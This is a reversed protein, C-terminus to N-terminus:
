FDSQDAARKAAAVAMARLDFAIAGSKSQSAFEDLLSEAAAIDDDTPDELLWAPNKGPKAEGKVLRAVVVDSDEVETLRPVLSRGFVLQDAAFDLCDICGFYDCRACDAPGYSTEVHDPVAGVAMLLHGEHESKDFGASGKGPRTVRIMPGDKKQTMM